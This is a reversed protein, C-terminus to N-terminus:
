TEKFAKLTKIIKRNTQEWFDDSGPKEYNYFGKGTKVGLEGKDVKEKIINPPEYGANGTTEHLYKLVNQVTDLGCMDLFQIPGVSALRLGFGNRVVSNIDEPSAVEQKILTLAANILAFQLYNHIFGPSDKCLVPHKGVTKLLEFIM